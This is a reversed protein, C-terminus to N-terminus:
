GEGQRLPSLAPIFPISSMFLQRGEDSFRRLRRGFKTPGNEDNEGQEGEGDPQWLKAL